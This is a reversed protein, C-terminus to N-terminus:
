AGAGMLMLPSAYGGAAAEEELIRFRKVTINGTRWDHAANLWSGGALGGLGIQSYTTDNATATETGNLEVSITSGNLILETVDDTALTDDIDVMLSLIDNDIRWLDSLGDRGLWCYGDQSAVTYRGFLGVRDSSQNTTGWTVEIIYDATAPVDDASVLLKDNTVSTDPTVEGSTAELFRSTPMVSNTWGTGTGDPARGSIDAAPSDSFGDDFIAVIAM